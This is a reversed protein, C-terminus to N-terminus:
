LSARLRELSCNLYPKWVKGNSHKAEGEILQKETRPATQLGKADITSSTANTPLM